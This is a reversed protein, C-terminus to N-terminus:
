RGRCRPESRSLWQAVMRLGSEVLGVSSAALRLSEFEDFWIVQCAPCVDLSVRTGHHGELTLATM